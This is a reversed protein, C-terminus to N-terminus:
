SNSSSCCLDELTWGSNTKGRWGIAEADRPSSRRPVPSETSWLTLQHGSVLNGWGWFHDVDNERILTHTVFREEASSPPYPPSSVRRSWNRSSSGRRKSFQSCNGCAAADGLKKRRPRYRAEITASHRDFISQLEYMRKIWQSSEFIPSVKREKGWTNM